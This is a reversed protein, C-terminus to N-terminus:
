SRTKRKVQWYGGRDSGIRRLVGEEKLKKLNWEIGRRTLGIRVKLEHQTITPKEKILAIIKEKTKEVTKEVTKGIAKEASATSKRKFVVIFHNGVEKFEATPEKSLILSIGRGWKEIFHVRHLLEALLENRRESVMETRIKEITLGGYLLGPSRIELRDKFIALNVSDHERYDRHCFANIIAERFAEKDIESVDIRRLGELRMGIHINELIYEQAKEILYFIDGEFEKRDIIFSTDTRAFVACRLKANPFFDQPRKAFLIVASNLLKRNALLKLKALSNFLTDYKLGATKLFAKLKKISIDPLGAQTCIETDWRLKDKNKKIILHELERASIQRDEDAVRMYARGFAFYPLNKGQFNVKICTKNNIRLQQIKPYIKPEINESIARSVDRLTKNGVEQGIISGDNKIGFYVEGCSHKNLIASISIVAEKLESTSKRLEITESEKYKM